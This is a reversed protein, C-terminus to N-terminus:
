PDFHFCGLKVSFIKKKLLDGEIDACAGIYTSNIQIDEFGICLGAEKSIGPIGFCYKTLDSIGVTKEFVTRNNLSVDFELSVSSALYKANLCVDDDFKIIHKNSVHECCYCSDGKCHCGHDHPLSANVDATRLVPSLSANVYATGSVASLSGMLLSSLLLVSSM